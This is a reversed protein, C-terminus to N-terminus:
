VLVYPGSEESPCSKENEQGRMTCWRRGKRTAKKGHSKIEVPTPKPLSMHRAFVM